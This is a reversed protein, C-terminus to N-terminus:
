PPVENGSVNPIPRLSAKRHTRDIAAWVKLVAAGKSTAHGLKIKKPNGLSVSWQWDGREDRVVTPIGNVRAIAFRRDRVGGRHDINSARLFNFPCLGVVPSHRDSDTAAAWHFGARDGGLNAARRQAAKRNGSSRNRRSSGARNSLRIARTM